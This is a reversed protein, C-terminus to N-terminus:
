TVPITAHKSGFAHELMYSPSLSLNSTTLALGGKSIDTVIGEENQLEGPNPSPFRCHPQLLRGDFLRPNDGLQFYVMLNLSWRASDPRESVYMFNM